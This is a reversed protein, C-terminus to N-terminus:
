VQIRKNGSETVPVSMLPDLLLFDRASFSQGMLHKEPKRGHKEEMTEWRKLSSIKFTVWGVFSRSVNIRDWKQRQQNRTQFCTPGLKWFLVLNWDYLWLLASMEWLGSVRSPTPSNKRVHNPCYRNNPQLCRSYRMQHWSEGDAELVSCKYITRLM